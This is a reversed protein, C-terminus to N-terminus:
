WAIQADIDYVLALGQLVWSTVLVNSRGGRAISWGGDVNVQEALWDAGKSVPMFNARFGLRKLGALVVATYLPNGPAHMERGWSGNGNQAAKIWRLGRFRAESDTEAQTLAILAFITHAVNANWSGDEEQHNTLHSVGRRVVSSGTGWGKFMLAQMAFSTVEVDSQGGRVLPWGGDINQSELIYSEAGEITDYLAKAGIQEQPLVVVAILSVVWFVSVSQYRDM